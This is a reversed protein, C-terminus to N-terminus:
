RSVADFDSSALGAAIDFGFTTLVSAQAFALNQFSISRTKSQNSVHAAYVRCLERGFGDFSAVVNELADAILYDALEHESSDALGIEKEALELNKSLIQESNHVGCDPCFAFVGYMSYVLTCNTCTLKTELEEEQYYRIPESTGTVKFSILSKGARHKSEFEKFIDLMKASAYNIVLSEIYENQAPTFFRDHDSKYGCYPCICDTTGELGTGVIIKFYGLCDPNPCERGTYGNEDSPLSFHMKGDLSDLM